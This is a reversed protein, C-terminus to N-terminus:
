PFTVSLLNKSITFESGYKSKINKLMLYKSKEYNVEARITNFIIQDRKLSRYREPIRSRNLLSERSVLTM